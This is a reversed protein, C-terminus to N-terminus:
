FPVGLEPSIVSSSNSYYIKNVTNDRDPRAEGVSVAVPRLDRRTPLREVLRQEHRVAAGDATVGLVRRQAPLCPVPVLHPSSLGQGASMKQGLLLSVSLSFLCFSLSDLSLRRYLSRRMLLSRDWSCLRGSCGSGYYLQALLLGVSGNRFVRALFTKWLGGEVTLSVGSRVLDQGRGLQPRAGTRVFLDVGPGVAADRHHVAQLVALEPRLVLLGPRRGGPSLSLEVRQLPLAGPDPSVWVGPVQLVEVEGVLGALGHLQIHTLQVHQLTECRSRVLKSVLSVECTVNRVKECKMVTM